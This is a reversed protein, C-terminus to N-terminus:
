RGNNVPLITIEFLFLFKLFYEITKKLGNELFFINSPGQVYTNQDFIRKNDFIPKTYGYPLCTEGCKQKGSNSSVFIPFYIHTPHHGCFLIKVAETM